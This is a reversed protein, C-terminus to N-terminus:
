NARIALPQIPDDRLGISLAKYGQAEQWRVTNVTTADGIKSDLVFMQAKPDNDGFRNLDMRIDIASVDFTKTPAGGPCPGSGAAAVAPIAGSGLGGALMSTATLAASAGVALLRRLPVSAALSPRASRETTWARGRLAVWALGVIALNAVLAILGDYLMHTALPMEVGGHHHSAGFAINHIPCALAEAISTVLAVVAVVTAGVLTRSTDAGSSRVLRQALRLGIWVAAIVLPLMLTSDRLWHIPGAPANVETAGEAEHLLHLWFGGGYALALSLSILAAPRVRPSPAAAPRSPVPTPQSSSSANM